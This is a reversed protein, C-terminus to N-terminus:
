SAKEGCLPPRHWNECRACYIAKPLKERAADGCACTCVEPRECNDGARKAAWEAGDAFAQTISDLVHTRYVEHAYSVAHERLTTM